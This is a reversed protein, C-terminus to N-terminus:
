NSSTALVRSLSLELHTDFWAELQERQAPSLAPALARLERSLHQLLHLRASELWRVATARHVGYMAAIATGSVNRVYHLRLLCRERGSLRAAAREFAQKSLAQREDDALVLEPDRPDIAEITLEAPAATTRLRVAERVLVVRVLGGLRGQGAYHLVVPLGDRQQVFLRIRVRQRVEVLEDPALRHIALAPEASALYRREFLRMAAASGEVCALALFVEGPDVVPHAAARAHRAIAQELRPSLEVGPWDRRGAALITQALADPSPSM